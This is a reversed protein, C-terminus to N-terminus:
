AVRVVDDHSDRLARRCASLAEDAGWNCVASLAAIRVERDRHLMGARVDDDPGSNTRQWCRIAASRVAASPSLLAIRVDARIDTQQISEATVAHLAAIRVSDDSSQLEAVAPHM